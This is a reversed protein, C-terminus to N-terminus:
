QETGSTRPEPSSRGDGPAAVPAAGRRARIMRKVPYWVMGALALVIATLFGLVASIVGLGMGPGVYAEASTALSLLCVAVALRKM